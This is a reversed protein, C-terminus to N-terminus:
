QIVLEAHLAGAAKIGQLITIVDRTSTKIQRLATVLDAITTDNPLDVAAALPEDVEIETDPVVVSSIGSSRVTTVFSPQSVEFDTSITLRINAHAIVVPSVTVNGGAVITGTRENIVVRASMDPQVELNEIESIFRVLNRQDGPVEIRVRGAHEAFAINSDFANNVSDVLRNATTFDSQNLVVKIYREDDLLSVPVEKEVQAGGSVLGVTPHNKQVLNGNLDFQFGGVTIQGQALAYVDGNAAQLPALLLTGGLLSRADGLSSVVADIRNGPEAFPPLEATVIVAAANRTSIDREDVSLGFSELTNIISQRTALSRPSDGSGALGVVIGYGTLLNTRVGDIRALNKLRVAEAISAASLLAVAAAALVLFRAITRLGKM